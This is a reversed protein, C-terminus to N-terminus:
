LVDSRPQTVVVLFLLVFFSVCWLGSMLANGHTALSLVAVFAATCAAGLCFWHLFYRM